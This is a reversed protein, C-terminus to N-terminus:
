DREEAYAAQPRSVLTFLGTLAVYFPFRFYFQFISDGWNFLLFLLVWCAVMAAFDDRRASVLAITAGVLWFGLALGAGILGTALIEDLFGNHAVVAAWGVAREVDRLHQPNWFAGFGYGFVPDTAVYTELNAWLEVRGSLDNVYANSSNLTAFQVATRTLGRTDSISAAFLGLSLVFGGAVLWPLARRVNLRALLLLGLLLMSYISIFRVKQVFLTFCAAALYALCLGLNLKRVRWLSVAAFLALAVPHAIDTAIGLGLNKAAFTPDLLYSPNLSGSAALDVWFTGIAVVGAGLIHLGLLQRNGESRAYFGVGLGYAGVLLLGMQGLRRITLTLSDSWLLSFFSWILYLAVLGVLTRLARGNLAALTRPLFWAGILAFAVVLLTNLVSGSEVASSTQDVQVGAHAAQEATTRTTTLLQEAMQVLWWGLLLVSVVRRESLWGRTQEVAIPSSALTETV